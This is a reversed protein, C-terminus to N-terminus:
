RGDFRCCALRRRGCQVFASQGHLSPWPKRAADASQSATVWEGDKFGTAITTERDEDSWARDFQGALAHAQDPHHRGACPVGSRKRFAVAIGQRIKAKEPDRTRLSFRLAAMRATVTIRAFESGIPVALMMGVARGQVDAPLCQTFQKFSTGPRNM